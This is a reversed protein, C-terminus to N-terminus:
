AEYTSPDSDLVSAEVFMSAEIDTGDSLQPQFMPEKTSAEIRKFEFVGKRGLGKQFSCVTFSGNASVLEGREGKMAIATRQRANTTAPHPLLGSVVEFWDPVSELSPSVRLGILDVNSDM